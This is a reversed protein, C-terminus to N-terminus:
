LMVFFLLAAGGCVVMLPLVRAGSRRAYIGLAVFVGLCTILGVMLFNQDIGDWAFGGAIWETKTYEYEQQATTSISASWQGNFTITSPAATTSIVTNGIKNDYGGEPNPVSSLVLGNVPIKHTGLTINGKSVEYTNGGFTISSGYQIPNNITTSPNTKFDAPNYIQNTMVPYEMARYYAQDIRMIPSYAAYGGFQVSTVRPNTATIETEFDYTQYYNAEGILTPWAGVYRLERHVTYINYGPLDPSPTGGNIDTWVVFQYTNNSSNPDYYIVQEDMVPPSIAPRNKVTWTVVGDVTTKELMMDSTIGFKYNPDTISSLDITIIYSVTGAPFQVLPKTHTEGLYMSNAAIAPLRFGAAIDVWGPHYSLDVDTKPYGQSFGHDNPVFGGYHTFRLMIDDNTYSGTIVSGNYLYSYTLTHTDDVYKYVIPRTVTAYLQMNGNNDGYIGMSMYQGSPYDTIYTEMYYSENLHYDIGVQAVTNFYDRMYISSKTHTKSVYEPYSNAVGSLTFNDTNMESISAYAYTYGTDQQLLPTVNVSEGSTKYDTETVQDLNMAYGLMIPVAIIAVLAIVAVKSVM